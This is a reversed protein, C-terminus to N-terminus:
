VDKKVEKMRKNLIKLVLSQDCAKQMGPLREVVSSVDEPRKNKVSQSLPKCSLGPRLDQCDGDNEWSAQIAPTGGPRAATKSSETKWTDEPVMYDILCFMGEIAKKAANWWNCRVSGGLWVRPSVQEIFALSAEQGRLDRQLCGLGHCTM